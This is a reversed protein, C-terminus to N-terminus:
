VPKVVLIYTYFTKKQFVRAFCGKFDVEAQYFNFNFVSLSHTIWDAV